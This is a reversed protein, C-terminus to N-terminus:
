ICFIWRLFKGFINEDSEQFFASKFQEGYMYTEPAPPNAYSTNRLDIPTWSKGPASAAPYFTGYTYKQGSPAQYTGPMIHIQFSSYKTTLNPSLTNSLVQEFSSSHLSVLEFHHNSLHHTLKFTREKISPASRLYKTGRNQGKDGFIQRASRVDCILL